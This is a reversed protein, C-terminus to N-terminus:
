ENTELLAKVKEKASMNAYKDDLNKHEVVQKEHYTNRFRTKLAFELLKDSIQKNNIGKIEQGSVKAILRQEFFKQALQKGEDVAKKFSPYKEAWEYVTSRVVGVTCGFCDLSLGQKMHDRVAQCYEKKFKIKSENTLM